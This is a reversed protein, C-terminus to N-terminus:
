NTLIKKGLEHAIDVGLKTLFRTTPEVEKSYPLVDYESEEMSM